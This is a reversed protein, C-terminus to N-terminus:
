KHGLLADALAKLEDEFLRKEKELVSQMFMHDPKTNELEELKAAVAKVNNIIQPRNLNVYSM